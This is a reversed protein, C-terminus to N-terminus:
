LFLFQHVLVFVIILLVSVLWHSGILDLSMHLQSAIAEQLLVLRARKVQGQSVTCGARRKEHFRSSVSCLYPCM